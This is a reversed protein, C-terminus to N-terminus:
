LSDLRGPFLVFYRIVVGFCWLPFLYINWNWPEPPISKFCRTFSDQNTWIWWVFNLYFCFKIGGFFLIFILLLLLLIMESFNWNFVFHSFERRCHCWCGRNSDAFYWAFWAQSFVFVMEGSERILFMELRNERSVFLVHLSFLFLSISLPLPLIEKCAFSATLNKNSQLDLLFTTRSIPDILTWNPAQLNSSGLVAVLWRWLNLNLNKSKNTRNQLSQSQNEDKAKVIKIGCNKKKVCDLAVAQDDEWRSELKEWPM